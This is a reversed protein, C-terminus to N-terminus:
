MMKDEDKIITPDPKGRVTPEGRSGRRRQYIGRSGRADTDRVMTKCGKSKAAQKFAGHREDPISDDGYGTDMSAGEEAVAEMDTGEPCWMYTKRHSEYEGTTITHINGRDAKTVLKDDQEEITLKSM